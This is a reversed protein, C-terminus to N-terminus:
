LREVDDFPTIVTGAWTPRLHSAAEPPKATDAAAFRGADERAGRM